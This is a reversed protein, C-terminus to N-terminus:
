GVHGLIEAELVDDTIVRRALLPIAREAADLDFGITSAQHNSGSVAIVRQGSWTRTIEERARWRGATRRAVTKYGRKCFHAVEPCNAGHCARQCQNRLTDLAPM